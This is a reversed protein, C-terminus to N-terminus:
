HSHMFFKCTCLREVMKNNSIIFFDVDCCQRLNDIENRLILIRIPNHFTVKHDMLSNLQRDVCKFKHDDKARFKNAVLLLMHDFHTKSGRIADIIKKTIKLVCGCNIERDIVNSEENMTHRVAYSM